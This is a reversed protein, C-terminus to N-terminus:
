RETGADVHKLSNVTFAAANGSSIMLKKAEEMNNTTTQRPSSLASSAGAGGPSSAAPVKLPSPKGLGAINMRKCDGSVREFALKTTNNSQHLKHLSHDAANIWMFGDTHM